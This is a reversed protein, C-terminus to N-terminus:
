CSTEILCEILVQLLAHFKQAANGSTPGILGPTKQFFHSEFQLTNMSVELLLDVLMPGFLSRIYIM